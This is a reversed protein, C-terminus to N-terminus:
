IPLQCLWYTVFNNYAEEYDFSYCPEGDREYFIHGFCDEYLEYTVGQWTFETILSEGNSQTEIGCFPCYAYVGDDNTDDIMGSSCVNCRMILVGKIYNNNILLSPM